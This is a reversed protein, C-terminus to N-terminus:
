KSYDYELVREIAKLQKDSLETCTDSLDIANIYDICEDITMYMDEVSDAQLTVTVYKTQGCYYSYTVTLATFDTFVNKEADYEAGSWRSVKSPDFGKFGSMDFDSKVAGINRVNDDMSFSTVETNNLNFCVLNNKNCYLTGITEVDPILLETLKNESCEVYDINVNKTLDLSELVNTTCSLTKLATCDSLDLSSLQNDACKLETLKTKGSLDISSLQNNFCQLTQLNSCNSVDLSSLQNLYCEVTELKPNESLDLQTLKNSSCYVITVAHNTDIDELCYYSNTATNLYASDSCYSLYVASNNYIANKISTLDTPAYLQMNNLQYLSVYRLEESLATKTSQPVLAEYVPGSGRAFLYTINYINGGEDYADTGIAQTCDGYLPDNEDSPAAGNTFWAMYKESLDVNNDELGQKILSSEVASMGAFAWCLGEQGQDKVSTVRNYNLNKYLILM